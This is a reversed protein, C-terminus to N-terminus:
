SVVIMPQKVDPICESFHTM